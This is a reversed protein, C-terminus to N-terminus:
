FVALKTTAVQKIQDDSEAILKVYYTGAGIMKGGFVRGDWSYTHYGMAYSTSSTSTLYRGTADYIQISVDAARTLSFGFEVGSQTASPSYPNPYVLFQHVELQDSTYFIFPANPYPKGFLDNASLMVTGNSDGVSTLRLVGQNADYTYYVDSSDVSVQRESKIPEGNLTLQISAPDIDQGQNQFTIVLPTNQQVSAYNHFDVPKNNVQYTVSEIYAPMSWSYVKNTSSLSPELNEQTPSNALDVASKYNTGVGKSRTLRIPHDFYIESPGTDRMKYYVDFDILYDGQTTAHKPIVSFFLTKSNNAATDDFAGDVNSPGPKFEVDFEYSRDPGDVGGIYFKPRSLPVENDFELEVYDDSSSNVVGGVIAEVDFATDQTIVNSDSIGITKLSTIELRHAHVDYTYPVIPNPSTAAAAMRKARSPNGM